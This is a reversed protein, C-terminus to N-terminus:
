NGQEERAIDAAILGRVYESLSKGARAARETVATKEEVPFVVTARWYRDRNKEDWRRNADRKAETYKSM